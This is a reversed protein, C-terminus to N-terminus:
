QHLHLYWDLKATSTVKRKAELGLLVLVAHNLKNASKHTTRANTRTM